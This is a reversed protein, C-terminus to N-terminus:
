RPRGFVQTWYVIGPHQQAAVGYAAGMETFGPNMINACHGPSDLWGAVAEDPSSQGFAINEGVRQWVYGARAARQAPESGDRAKHSFYRQAAMDRSHELAAQGLRRNWNVPPAASFQEAGCTRASARAANVGDLIAKGADIWDPFTESPLPPAPRALIVTWEDGERYSGIAEFAPSLLTECYKERLVTMADIAKQPGNVSLTEAHDAAYGARTLIPEIFAAPGIRARALAPHALLAPAPAAPRGACTRPALRYANILSTLQESGAPTPAAMAVMGPWAAGAALLISRAARKLGRPKPLLPLPNPPMSPEEGRM